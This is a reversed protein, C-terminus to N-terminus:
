GTGRGQGVAVIVEAFRLDAFRGFVGQVLAVDGDGHGVGPEVVLVGHDAGASAVEHAGVGM